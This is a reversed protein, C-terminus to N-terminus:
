INIRGAPVLVRGNALTVAPAATRATLMHAVSLWRNSGPDYRMVSDTVASGSAGGALLVHGDALLAAAAGGRDVLMSGADYWSGM